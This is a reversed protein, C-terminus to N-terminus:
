MENLFYYEFFAFFFLISAFLPADILSVSM